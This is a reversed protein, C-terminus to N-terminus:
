QSVHLFANSLENGCSLDGTVRYCNRVPFYEPVLLLVIPGFGNSGYLSPAEVFVMTWGSASPQLDSHGYIGGRETEYHKM